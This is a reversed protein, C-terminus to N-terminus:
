NYQSENITSWSANQWKKSSPTLYRCKWKELWEEFSVLPQLVEYCYRLCRDKATDSPHLYLPHEYTYGHSPIRYDAIRTFSLLRNDYQTRYMWAVPEASAQAAPESQAAALDALAFKEIGDKTEMKLAFGKPVGNDSLKVPDVLTGYVRNVPEAVTEVPEDAPM